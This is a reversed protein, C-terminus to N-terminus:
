SRSNCIFELKLCKLVWTCPNQLYIYFSLCKLTIHQLVAQPLGELQEDVGEYGDANDHEYCTVGGGTYDVRRGPHARQQRRPVM